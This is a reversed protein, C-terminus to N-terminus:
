FVGFVAQAAALIGAIVSASGAGWRAATSVVLSRSILAAQLEDRLLGVATELKEFNQTDLVTHATLMSQLATLQGSVQGLIFDPSREVEGVEV